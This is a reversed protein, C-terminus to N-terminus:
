FYFYPLPPLNVSLLKSFIIYVGISFALSIVTNIKWKEKGNTIALIAKLFLFTSIVYGLHNFIIAYILSAICTIGIMKWSLRDKEESKEKLIRLSEITMKFDSTLLLLGGLVSLLAALILPYVSPAMPSGITARPLLYAKIGYIIGFLLTILGILGNFDLNKKNEM